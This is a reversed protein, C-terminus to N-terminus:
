SLGVEIQFVKGLERQGMDVLLLPISKERCPEVIKRFVHDELDNAIYVTHVKDQQILRLTQKLGIVKDKIEKLSRIDVSSHPM